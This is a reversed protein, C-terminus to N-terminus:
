ELIINFVKEMTRETPSVHGNLIRNLNEPSIDAHDALWRQSRENKKLWLLVYKTFRTPKYTLATDMHGGSDDVCDLVATM